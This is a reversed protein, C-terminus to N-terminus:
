VWASMATNCRSRGSRVFFLFCCDHVLAAFSYRRLIVHSELRSHWGVPGGRTNNRPKDSPLNSFAAIFNQLSDRSWIAWKYWQIMNILSYAPPRPRSNDDAKYQESAQRLISSAAWSIRCASLKPVSGHMRFSICSDVFRNSPFFM